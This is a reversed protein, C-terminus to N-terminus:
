KIIGLQRAQELLAPDTRQPQPPPLAARPQPPTWPTARRGEAELAAMEWAAHESLRGDNALRSADRFLSADLTQKAKAALYRAGALQDAASEIMSSVGASVYGGHMQALEAVRHRAYRRAWREFPRFDEALPLHAYGRPGPRTVKARQATNGRIFRGDPGRDPRVAFVPSASPLEDAPLLEIRPVGKGAGHGKRLAM